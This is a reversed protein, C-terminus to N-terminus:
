ESKLAPRERRVIEHVDVQARLRFLIAKIGFISRNWYVYMPHARTIRKRSTRLLIDIGRRFHSEDGFDFPGPQAMPEMMWERNENMMQLYDPFAPDDETVGCVRRIVEPTLAPNEFSMADALRM